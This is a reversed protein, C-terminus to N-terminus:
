KQKVSGENIVEFDEIIIEAEEGDSPPSDGLLWFNIHVKETSSEPIDDGTYEWENILTNDTPNKDHGHWSQFSVKDPLWRFRHTSYSGNLNLTFNTSNDPQVVYKGVQKNNKSGWRSFEIDIENLDDLYTFLGVVINKDLDEVNSNLYFKYEGYGFSQQSILESCHWTDGIKRIKLHLKGDDDVWVNNESNSWNNSGPNGYGSKVNWTKGAFEVTKQRLDEVTSSVQVPWIWSDEKSVEYLSNHVQIKRGIYWERFDLGNWTYVNARFTISEGYRNTIHQYSGIRNIKFVGSFIKSHLVVILLFLLFTYRVLKYLNGRM